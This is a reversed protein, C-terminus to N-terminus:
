SIGAVPTPVPKIAARNRAANSAKLIRAESMLAVMLEVHRGVSYEAGRSERQADCVAELEMLKFLAQAPGPLTMGGLLRRLHVVRNYEELGHRATRVLLAPRKLRSVQTLIDEM